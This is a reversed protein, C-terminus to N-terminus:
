SIRWVAMLVPLVFYLCSVRYAQGQLGIDDLLNCAVHEWIPIGDVVFVKDFCFSFYTSIVLLSARTAAVISCCM